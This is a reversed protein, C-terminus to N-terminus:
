TPLYLIVCWPSPIFLVVLALVAHSLALCSYDRLNMNLSAEERGRGKLSAEERGRGKLSAEEHGRGKLSAEEHGRGQLTSTNHKGGTTRSVYKFNENDEGLNLELEKRPSLPIM